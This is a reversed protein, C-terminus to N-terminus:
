AMAHTEVLLIQEHGERIWYTEFIDTSVGLVKAIAAKANNPIVAPFKSPHRRKGSISWSLEHGGGVDCHGHYVDGAFHPPDRRATFRGVTAKKAETLYEPEVEIKLSPGISSELYDYYASYRERRTLARELLLEALKRVASKPKKDKNPMASADM